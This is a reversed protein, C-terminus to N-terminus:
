ENKNFTVQTESVTLDYDKRFYIKKGESPTVIYYLTAKWPDTAPTFRYTFSRGYDWAPVVFDELYVPSEGEMTFVPTVRCDFPLKNTLSQRIEHTSRAPADKPDGAIQLPATAIGEWALNGTFSLPLLSESRVSMEYLRGPEFTGFSEVIPQFTFSPRLIGDKVPFRFLKGLASIDRNAIGERYIGDLRSMLMFKGNDQVIFEAQNDGISFSGKLRVSSFPISNHTELLIYPEPLAIDTGAATLFSPLRIGEGDVTEAPFTFDDFLLGYRSFDIRDFGFTFHLDLPTRDADPVVANESVATVVASIATEISWCRRDNKDFFQAPDYVSVLRFVLDIGDPTVTVDPLEGDVYSAPFWYPFEIKLRSLSVKRYPAEGDLAITLKFLSECEGFELHDCGTGPLSIDELVVYQVTDLYRKNSSVQPAVPVRLSYEQSPVFAPAMSFPMSWDQEGLALCYGLLDDEVISPSDALEPFFDVLSLTESFPLDQTRAPPYLVKEEEGGGDDVPAPKQCGTLFLAFGLSVGIIYLVKRMM